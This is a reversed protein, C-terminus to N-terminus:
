HHSFNYIAFFDTAVLYVALWFVIAAGNGLLCLTRSVNRESPIALILGLISIAIAAVSIRLTLLWTAHETPTAHSPPHRGPYALDIGYVTWVLLINATLLIVSSLLLRRGREHAAPLRSFSVWAGVGIAGSGGVLLLDFLRTLGLSLFYLLKSMGGM